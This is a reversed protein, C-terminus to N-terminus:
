QWRLLFMTLDSEDHFEVQGSLTHDYWRVKYDARLGSQGYTQICWNKIAFSEELTITRFIAVYVPPRYDYEKIYHSLNIM